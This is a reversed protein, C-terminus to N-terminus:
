SFRTASPSEASGAPFSQGASVQIRGWGDIIQLKYNGSLDTENSTSFGVNDLSATVLAGAIPTSGLSETVAGTINVTYGTFPRLSMNIWLSDGPSAVLTSSVGMSPFYGPADFMATTVLGPLVKVEYYGTANPTTWNIYDPGSDM